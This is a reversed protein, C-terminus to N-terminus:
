EVKRADFTRGGQHHVAKTVRGKEDKVFRSRRRGGRELFYETESKPFCSWNGAPRDNARVVPGERTVTLISKGQGYDYKGVLSDYVAPNVKVKVPEELRPAYIINDDQHHIAKVVKGSKDKVFTVQAEVEKWFYNTETLPFIELKKQRGLQAFLRDGERTVTM